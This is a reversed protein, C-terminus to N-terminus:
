YNDWHSSDPVGTEEALRRGNQVIYRLDVLGQCFVKLPAIDDEPTKSERIDALAGKCEGVLKGFHEEVLGRGITRPKVTKVYTGVRFSLGKTAAHTEEIETFLNELTALAAEYSECFEAVYDYSKAASVAREANAIATTHKKERSVKEQAYTVRLEALQEAISREM